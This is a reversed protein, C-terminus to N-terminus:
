DSEDVVSHCDLARIREMLCHLQDKPLTSILRTVENSGEGAEEGGEGRGRGGGGEM